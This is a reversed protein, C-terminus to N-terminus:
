LTYFIPVNASRCMSILRQIKPIVKQYPLTNMGLTDYSGAKSVFGNQM